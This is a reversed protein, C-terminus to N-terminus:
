EIDSEKASKIWGIKGNPLKVKIYGDIENLKEVSMQHDTIYFVTSNYTPLIRIKTDKSIIITDFPNYFLLLYAVSAIIILLYVIKKRIIFLVLSIFAAVALAINKYLTLKSDKPNLELQTSTDESKVKVPISFKKFSNQTTDFYTFEFFKRKKPLIAFYFIKMDPLNVSYSDIHNKIVGSLNFDKLNALKGTIEMVLINSKDDYKTTKAKEVKLNQAIVGSFLNSKQLKVIKTDIPGLTYASLVRGKKLIKIYIKPFRSKESNVKYYFTNFYVSDGRKQWPSKPNLVDVKYGRIFKTSIKDFRKIAVILKVEVKFIQKVYVREPKNAYTAYILNQRINQTASGDDIALLHTFFILLLFVVKRM